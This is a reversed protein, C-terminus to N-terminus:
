LNQGCERAAAEFSGRAQEIPAQDKIVAMCDAVAQQWVPGTGKGKWKLLFEAAREANTVCYREGVKETAVYVPPSFWHLPM